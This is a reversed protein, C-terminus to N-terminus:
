RRHSAEKLLALIHRGKEDDRQEAKGIATIGMWGPIEPDAGARLLLEVAESDGDEAAYHLVTNGIREEDHANVDAGASIL